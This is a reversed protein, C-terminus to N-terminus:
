RAVIDGKLQERIEINGKYGASARWTRTYTLNGDAYAQQSMMIFQM